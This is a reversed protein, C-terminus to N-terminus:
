RIICSKNEYETYSSFEGFFLHKPFSVSNLDISTMDKIWHKLSHLQSMTKPTGCAFWSYFIVKVTVYYTM